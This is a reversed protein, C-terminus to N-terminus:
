KWRLVSLHHTRAVSRASPRVSGPEQPVARAAHDASPGRAKAPLHTRAGPRRRWIGSM